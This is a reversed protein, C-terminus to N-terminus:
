RSTPQSMACLSTGLLIRAGFEDHDVVYFRGNIAVALFNQVGQFPGIHNIQMTVGDVSPTRKALVHPKRRWCRRVWSNPIDSLSPIPANRDIRWRGAWCLSKSV